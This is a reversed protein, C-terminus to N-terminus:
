PPAIGRKGSQIQFNDIPRTSGLRAAALAVQPEGGTPEKLDARRRLSICDLKWGRAQMTALRPPALPKRTAPPSAPPLTGYPTAADAPTPSTMALGAAGPM